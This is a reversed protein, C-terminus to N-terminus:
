TGFVTVLAMGALAMKIRRLSGVAYDFRVKPGTTVKSGKFDRVFWALTPPPQM